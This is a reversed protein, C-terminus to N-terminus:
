FNWTAGLQVSAGRQKGVWGNVSFDLTVPEEGPKVQWGLELLGSSGKLTPSPANGGSTFHARAESGFEYQWALGGYFSNRENVKHTFRAGLRLRHSDVSGFDVREDGLGDAHVSVADAAQHSFFYKCYGDIADGNGLDFTKGAGLHAALYTSASDYHVRGVYLVDGNYDSTVRGVRLSGEYYFGDRNIQRAMVGLGYYHAVGDGQTGDDLYSEYSGGGYEVVPGFLLKGQSNSLERAFGVNLGFGKTDVYSGSEVRMGSGGFAAFPTFGGGSKASDGSKANSAEMELAVANAAQSFGQSALMDAGANVFTTTAARTEILSKASENDAVNVSEVTAIVKNDKQQVNFTYDKKLALSLARPSTTITANTFNKLGNLSSNLTITDNKVLPVDKEADMGITVGIMNTETGVTMMTRGNTITRDLNFNMNQFNIIGGVENGKGVVNLTNGYSTISEGGYVSETVTGGSITVTNNIAYGNASSYGGYVKGNVTGGTIVVTNNEANGSKAYGGYVFMTQDNPSYYGNLDVRNSVADGDSSYGGCLNIKAASIAGGTLTMTNGTANGNKTYGGAVYNSNGNMVLKAEDRLTFSNGSVSGNLSYGGGVVHNAATGSMTLKAGDQLMLSSGSVSGNESYGGAAVADSASASADNNVTVTTLTGEVTLTGGTVNGGSSHAGTLAGGKLLLTIQSKNTIRLSSNSIDKPGRAGVCLRIPNGQIGDLILSYGNLDRSTSTYGGYLNWEGWNGGPITLIKTSHGYAPDPTVPLVQESPDTLVKDGRDANIWISNGALAVSGGAIWLSVALALAAAKKGKGPRVDARSVRYFKRRKMCSVEM